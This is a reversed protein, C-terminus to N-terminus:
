QETARETAVLIKAPILAAATADVDITPHLYARETLTVMDAAAIELVGTGIPTCHNRQGCDCALEDLYMLAAYPNDPRYATASGRYEDDTTSKV